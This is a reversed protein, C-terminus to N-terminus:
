TAPKPAARLRLASSIACASLWGASQCGIEDGQM